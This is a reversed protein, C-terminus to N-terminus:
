HRVQDDENGVLDLASTSLSHIKFKKKEEMLCQTTKASNTEVYSFSRRQWLRSIASRGSVFKLSKSSGSREFRPAQISFGTGYPESIAQGEETIPTMGLSRIVPDVKLVCEFMAQFSAM